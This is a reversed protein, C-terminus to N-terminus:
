VRISEDMSVLGDREDLQDDFGGLLIGVRGVFDLERVVLRRSMEREKGEVGQKMQLLERPQLQIPPSSPLAVKKSKPAVTEAQM